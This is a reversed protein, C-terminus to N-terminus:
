AEAKEKKHRAVIQSAIHSPVADHHSISMTYSGEGGTISRLETQYTQMEAVPVKAQVSVWDGESGTNQIRGRRTNLDGMLDGTYAQPALIEVDAIPELLVPHAQEVALKFAHRGAIQFAVDKSDVPHEKGDYVIVKCDIFRNGAIVGDEMVQRIGKEISPLFNQSIAGGVIESVFSFGGGREVPEVRLYVHAFQGAGGSQKKHRYDAVGKATITELYPIRPLRTEVEVQYRSKLREFLVDLHLTSMGSVVLEHTQAIREAKLTCDGDTLKHLAGMIKSDDARSKPTVAVGVMPSPYAIAPWVVRMDGSCLADGLNLVELKTVAVVDGAVAESIESHDKGFLTYIHAIKVAGKDDNHHVQQGARLSGSVIKLLAIKGVFSDYTVHFVRATFPMDATLELEGEGEASLAKTTCEEPSPFLDVIAELLEGVGIDQQAACVFVPVLAGSAFATRFCRAVVDDALEEGELYLMMAEDDSEVVREVLASRLEAGEPSSSGHLVTEVGTFDGGVLGGVPVCVPLCGDGFTDQIENLVAPWRAHEMDVRTVAIARPRGMKKARRWIERTNVKIGDQGDIAVVVGDAAGMASIAQGIFDPYGPADLLHLRHGQYDCTAVALDISHQKTHELEDYDCVTSGTGVSGLRQIAKAKLLCAEVLTTKGCSGHGVFAVSRIDASTMSAM